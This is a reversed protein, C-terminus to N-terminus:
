TRLGGCSSIEKHPDDLVLVNIPCLHVYPSMNLRTSSIARFKYRPFMQLTKRSTINKIHLQVKEDPNYPSPQTTLPITM